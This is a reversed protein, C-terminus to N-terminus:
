LDAAGIGRAQAAEGGAGGAGAGSAPCGCRRRGLGFGGAPGQADGSIEASGLPNRAQNAGAREGRSAAAQAIRLGAAASAFGGGHDRQLAEHAAFAEGLDAGTEGVEITHEPVQKSSNM